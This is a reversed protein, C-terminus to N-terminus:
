TKSVIIKKNTSKLLYRHDAKLKKSLRTKIISKTIIFDLTRVWSLIRAAFSYIKSPSKPLTQDPSCLNNKLTKKAAQCWM